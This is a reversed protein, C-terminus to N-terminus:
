NIGDPKAAQRLRRAGAAAAPRCALTAPAARCALFVTDTRLDSSPGVLQYRRTEGSPTFPPSRRSGCAPLGVHGPGGPLGFFVTDTRLDSSPGEYQYRKTEGSPRFPPSRRSGCAPLGVHGPGGPLGFFFPILVSTQAQVRTSIGNPKAARYFRRAGAAAAPRCALTAPAARCALFVTDNRLDSSPGM